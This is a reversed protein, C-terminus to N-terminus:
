SHYVSTVFKTLTVCAGLRISDISDDLRQILAPYLFEVESPELSGM